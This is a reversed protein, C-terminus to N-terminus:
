HTGQVFSETLRKYSFVCGLKQFMRSLKQLSLTFGFAQGLGQSARDITQFVHGRTKTMVHVMSEWDTVM